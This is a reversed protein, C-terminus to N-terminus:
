EREYHTSPLTELLECIGTRICERYRRREGHKDMLWYEIIDIGKRLAEAKLEDAHKLGSHRYPNHHYILSLHRDMPDM